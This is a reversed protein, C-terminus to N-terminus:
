KNLIQLLYNYTEKQKANNEEDSCFSTGETKIRGGYFNMTYVKDDSCIFFVQMYEIRGSFSVYM